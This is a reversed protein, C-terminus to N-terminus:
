ATNKIITFAEILNPCIFDPRDSRDYMQVEEQKSVGTLVLISRIGVNKAFKIDTNMRDGIMWINKKPVDKLGDITEFVAPNPKGLVIPNRSAATGICKALAYAGPILVRRNYPYSGDQNASLLMADNEIVFRTAIAVHRYSFEESSGVIVAGVTPDLEMEHIDQGDFNSTTLVTMGNKQMESIFGETGIVFIKRGSGGNNGDNKFGLRTLYRSVAVASTVVDREEFGPFGGNALRAVYQASSRSANNTLIIVRFGDKRMMDIAEAAHPVATGGHWVVGEGDLCIVHENENTM